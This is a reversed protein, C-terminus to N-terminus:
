SVTRITPWCHAHLKTCGPPKVTERHGYEPQLLIGDGATHDGAPELRGPRACVVNLAGLNAADTVAYHAGSDDDFRGLPVGGPHDFLTRDSECGRVSGLQSGVLLVM